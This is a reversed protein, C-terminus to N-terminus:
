PAWTIVKDFPAPKWKRIGLLKRWYNFAVPSLWRDGHERLFRHIRPRRYTLFLWRVEQWDGYELTRQIILDADRTLWLKELDYEQFYPRLAPPILAPQDQM